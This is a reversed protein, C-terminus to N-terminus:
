NLRGGFRRAYRSFSLNTRALREGRRGCSPLRSSVFTGCEEVRAGGFITRGVVVALADGM